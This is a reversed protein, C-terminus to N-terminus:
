ERKCHSWTRCGSVCRFNEAWALLIGRKSGCEFYAATFEFL